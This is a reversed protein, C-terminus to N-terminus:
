CHTWQSLNEEPLWHSPAGASESTWAPVRVSITAILMHHPTKFYSSHFPAVPSLASIGPAHLPAWIDLSLPFKPSVGQFSVSLWLLDGPNWRGSRLSVSLSLSLSLRFSHAGAALLCGIGLSLIHLPLIGALPLPLLPAPLCLCLCAHVCVSTRRSYSAVWVLVSPFLSADLSVLVCSPCFSWLASLFLSRPSPSLHENEAISFGQESM